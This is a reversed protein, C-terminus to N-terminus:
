KFELVTPQENNLSESYVRFRLIKPSFRLFSFHGATLGAEIAVDAFPNRGKLELLAKKIGDDDPVVEVYGNMECEWSNEYPNELNYILISVKGSEALHSLKPSDKLTMLYCSFDVDVGYYMIRLRLMGGASDNTAIVAVQQKKLHELIEKGSYQM